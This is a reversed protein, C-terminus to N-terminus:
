LNGLCLCLGARLHVLFENLGLMVAHNWVALRLVRGTGVPDGAVLLQVGNRPMGAFRSRRHIMM